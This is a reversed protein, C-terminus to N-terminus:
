RSKYDSISVLTWKGGQERLHYISTNGPRVRGRPAQGLMLEVFRGGQGSHGVVLVTRGSGAFRSKFRTVAAQTVALGDQYNGDAIMQDHGPVRGFYRSISVPVRVPGVTHLPNAHAPLKRARGVQTCCENFEPWVEARLNQARLVEYATFLARPSPSCIASNFHVAQLRGPLSKVEALGKTSFANITKSNYHGTANAETEGHRVFYVETTTRQAEASTALALLTTLGVVTAVLATPASRASILFRRLM